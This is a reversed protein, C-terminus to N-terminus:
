AGEDGAGAGEEPRAPAGPDAILREAIAWDLESVSRAQSREYDILWLALEVKPPYRANASL